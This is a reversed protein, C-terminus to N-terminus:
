RRSVFFRSKGFCRRFEAECRATNWNWANEIMALSCHAEASLPDLEVANRAAAQARPM